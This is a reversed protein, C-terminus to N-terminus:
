HAKVKYESIQEGNAAMVVRRCRPCGENAAKVAEDDEFPCLPPGDCVIVEWTPPGVTIADSEDV